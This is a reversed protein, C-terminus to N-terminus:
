RRWTLDFAAVADFGMLDGFAAFSYLPVDGGVAIGADPLALHSAVVGYGTMYRAEFDMRDAIRASIGAFVGPAVLLEKNALRSRFKLRRPDTM